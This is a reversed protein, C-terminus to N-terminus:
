HASAFLMAITREDIWSGETPSNPDIFMSYGYPIIADNNITDLKM